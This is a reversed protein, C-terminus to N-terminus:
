GQKALMSINFKKLEKFGLGGVGKPKCMKDWSKWRIGKNEQGYGWWFGNFLVEINECIENSILLLNTWFNPVCQASTKLLTCKCAKSMTRNSWNQLKQKVRNTLFQFTAVKKQGVHMSMGLYKGPEDVERVQLTQCIASCERTKTNPSFSICSKNFNIAQGFIKEYRKLVAKVTRAEVKYAKFFM